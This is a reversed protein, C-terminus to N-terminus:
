RELAAEYCARVAAIDEDLGCDCAEPEEAPPVSACYVAHGILVKGLLDNFHKM